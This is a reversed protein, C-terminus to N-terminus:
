TEAAAESHVSHFLLHSSLFHCCRRWCAPRGSTFDCRAQTGPAAHCPPSGASLRPLSPGPLPSELQLALRGYSRQSHDRPADDEPRENTRHSEQLSLSLPFPRRQRQPPRPGRRLPQEADRRRWPTPKPAPRPQAWASKCRRCGSRTGIGCLKQSSISRMFACPAHMARKQTHPCPLPM